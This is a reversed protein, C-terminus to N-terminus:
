GLVEKARGLLLAVLAKRVAVGYHAQRFYAAHPHTDVEPAIESVRPLPHLIAVGPPAGELVELDLRYADRVREFEHPDTFREQQIRTM